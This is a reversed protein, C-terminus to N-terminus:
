GARNRSAEPGVGPVGHRHLDAIPHQGDGAIQGGVAEPGHDTPEVRFHAAFLLAPWPATVGLGNAASLTFELLPCAAPCAGKEEGARRSVGAAEVAPRDVGADRLGAVGEEHDFEASVEASAHGRERELTIEALRPSLMPFRRAFLAYSLLYLGLFLMTPGLEPFGFSRGPCGPSRRCSWCIASSGSRWSASRQSCGSRPAREEEPGCGAPRLLSHHVDRHVGSQGSAALPGLAARLRVRDGRSPQRVLDGPVPGVDSLVLVRHLRLVAERPRPAAEPLGPRRVGLHAAGHITMLALLMHAGLFAGMFFFAGLLNSFWHPQLAMVGDFAMLTLVIAYIVAYAPALRAIRDQQWAEAEPTGLYGRTLRDYLERRGAPAASRVALLDPVLDALVLRWGVVTLLALGLALRAFMFPQSLWLAKGHQLEPLAATMPGYVSTYGLTFILLFAVLSIPVFAVSASAFRIMLGSWKANTIKQVAVFAVSGFALGSFYLWNVHFLQWAREGQGSGLAQLFFILGLVSLGGGLGLFLQYRGALSRQVLREHLTSSM